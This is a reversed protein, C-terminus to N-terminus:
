ATYEAMHIGDIHENISDQTMSISKHAIVIVDYIYSSYEALSDFGIWVLNYCVHIGRLLSAAIVKTFDNTYPICLWTTYRSISWKLCIQLDYVLFFGVPINVNYYLTQSSFFEYCVCVCM